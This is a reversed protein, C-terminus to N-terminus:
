KNDLFENLTKDEIKYQIENLECDLFYAKLILRELDNLDKFSSCFTDYGHKFFSESKPGTPMYTINNGDYYASMDQDRVYRILMDIMEPHVQKRRKYLSFLIVKELPKLNSMFM